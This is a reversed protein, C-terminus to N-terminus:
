ENLVYQTIGPPVTASSIPRTGAEPSRLKRHPLCVNLGWVLLCTFYNGAAPLVPPFYFLTLSHPHSPHPPNSLESATVESVEHRRRWTHGSEWGGQGTYSGAPRLGPIGAKSPRRLSGSGQALAPSTNWLGM